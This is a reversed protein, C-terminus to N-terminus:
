YFMGRRPPHPLMKLIRESNETENELDVRVNKIAQEVAAFFDAYYAPYNLRRFSDLSMAVMNAMTSGWLSAHDNKDKRFDGQKAHIFRNFHIQYPMIGGDDALSATLGLGAITRLSLLFDKTNPSQHTRFFDVSIEFLKALVLVDNNSLPAVAVSRNTM